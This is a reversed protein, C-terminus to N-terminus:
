LGNEYSNLREYSRGLIWALQMMKWLRQEEVENVPFLNAESQIASYAQLIFGHEYSTSTIDQKIVSALNQIEEFTM